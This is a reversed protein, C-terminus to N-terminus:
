KNGSNSLNLLRQDIYNKLSEYSPVGYIIEVGDKGVFVFSPTGQMKLWTIGQQRDAIIDQAAKDNNLCATIEDQNLGFEKAYDYLQEDDGALLWFRQKAFLRNLFPHYNEKTACQLALAAKMSKKDLPFNVFVIRLLNKEVYEKKLRPVIDLHFDACHPCGLSSFEFLTLPANVSGEAFKKSANINLDKPLVTAIGNKTEAKAEQKVLIIKGDNTITFGKYNFYFVAAFIFVLVFSLARSIKKIIGEM